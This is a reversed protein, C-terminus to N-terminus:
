VLAHKGAITDPLVLAAGPRDGPRVPLGKLAANGNWDPGREQGPSGVRGDKPTRRKDGKMTWSSVM